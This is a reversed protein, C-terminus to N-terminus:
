GIVASAIVVMDFPWLDALQLGDISVPELLYPVRIKVFYAATTLQQCRNQEHQLEGYVEWWKRPGIKNWEPHKPDALTAYLETPTSSLGIPIEPPLGWKSLLDQRYKKCESEVAPLKEDGSQLTALLGWTLMAAVLLLAIKGRYAGLLLKIHEVEKRAPLPSPWRGCRATKQASSAAGPKCRDQL